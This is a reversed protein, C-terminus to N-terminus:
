KAEVQLCEAEWRLHALEKGLATIRTAQQKIASDQVETLYEMAQRNTVVWRARLDDREEIVSLMKAALAPFAELLAAVTRNSNPYKEQSELLARIEEALTPEM